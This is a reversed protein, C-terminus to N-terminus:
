IEPSNKPCKKFLRFFNETTQAAIEDYSVRKVEALVEATKVVYAPECIKGRFPEPALFPADTEVLLRDMPIDRAIQRLEESKNFTLIGSFSLYLGLKLGEEALFRRSSFCHLVGQVSGEDKLVRLTDDEAARSHIVVPLNTQQAAQIHRRFSQQQKDQPVTNRFYDLGTEGLGIVKPHNTKQVITEVSLDEGEDGAHEPHIGFCCFVDSYAEATSLVTDFTRQNTSINVMRALGAARARAIVGDRDKVLTPFDLHCHSDIIM